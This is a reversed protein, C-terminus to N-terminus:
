LEIFHCFYVHETFLFYKIHLYPPLLSAQHAATWPTAFLRVHGLSQVSRFQVSPTKGPPETIFFGGALCSVQIRDRPLDGPTSFPFGIQYEQRSFEMSLSAQCAVTWRTAFDYTVSCILMIHVYHSIHIIIFHLYMFLLCINSVLIETNQKM